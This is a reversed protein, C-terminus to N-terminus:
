ICNRCNAKSFFAFGVTAFMIDRPVEFDISTDRSIYQKKKYMLKLNSHCSITQSIKTAQNIKQLMYVFNIQSACQLYVVRLKLVSIQITHERNHRLSRKLPM